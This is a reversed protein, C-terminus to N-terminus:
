HVCSMYDSTSGRVPRGVDTKYVRKAEKAARVIAVTQISILNGFGEGKGDTDDWVTDVSCRIHIHCLFLM